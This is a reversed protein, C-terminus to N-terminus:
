ALEPQLWPFRAPEPFAFQQALNSDMLFQWAQEAVLELHHNTDNAIWEAPGGATEIGKACRYIRRDGASFNESSFDGSALLQRCIDAYEGRGTRYFVHDSLLTYRIRAPVNVPKGPPVYHAGVVGYDAPVILQEAFVVSLQKWLEFDIRKERRVKGHDQKGLVAPISSGALVTNRFRGLRQIAQLAGLAIGLLTDPNHNGIFRFDLIVDLESTALALSDLVTTVSAALTHPEVLDDHTLRLCAGRKDRAVISRVGALYDRDRDAETGTVPIALAGRRRLSDLLFTIPQAGSCTRLDLQLDHVDIYVPRTGGLARYVGDAREELYNDLTKGNELVPVPVDFLHATRSRALPSLMDVARFAGKRAPLISLYCYSGRM